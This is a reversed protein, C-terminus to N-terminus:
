FKGYIDGERGPQRAEEELNGFVERISGRKMEYAMKNGKCEESANQMNTQKNVFGTM